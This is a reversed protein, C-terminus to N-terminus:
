KNDRRRRAIYERLDEIGFVLAVLSTAVVGFGFVFWGLAELEASTM